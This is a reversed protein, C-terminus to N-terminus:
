IGLWEGLKWGLTQTYAPKDPDAWLSTLGQDIATMGSALGGSITYDGQEDGTIWSGLAGVGEDLLRGAGYGAAGAGLVAGLSGAATAAGAGTLLGAGGGTLASGAGATLGASGGAAFLSSGFMSSITGALGTAGSFASMGGIGREYWPKDEDLMDRTGTYLGAISTLGGLATGGPLAATMEPVTTGAMRALPVNATEALGQLVTAGTGVIGSLNGLNLEDLFGRQVTLQRAGNTQDVRTGASATTEAEHELADDAPGVTLPGAQTMSQQQVVHTLEHTLVHEDTPSSLRSFFIDNGLTFASAGVSLSLMDAEADDHLRVASLDAGFAAEMRAQTSSQLPRGNGLRGYIRGALQNSIPGGERGIEPWAWSGSAPLAEEDAFLRAITTNGLTSQLQEVPSVRWEGASGDGLEHHARQPKPTRHERKETANQETM